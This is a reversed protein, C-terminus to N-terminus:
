KSKFHVTQGNSWSTHDNSKSRFIRKVKLHVKGVNWRMAGEVWIKRFDSNSIISFTLSPHCWVMSRSMSIFKKMMVLCFNHPFKLLRLRNISRNGLSLMVSRIMEVFSDLSCCEKLRQELFYENLFRSLDIWIGRKFYRLFQWFNVNQDLNM